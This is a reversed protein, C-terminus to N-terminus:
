RPDDSFRGGMAQSSSLLDNWAREARRREHVFPPVGRSFAFDIQTKVSSGVTDAMRRLDFHGLGIANAVVAAAGMRNVAFDAAHFIGAAQLIWAIADPSGHADFANQNNAAGAVARVGSMIMAAAVDFTIPQPGGNPSLIRAEPLMTVIPALGAESRIGHWAMRVSEWVNPMRVSADHYLPAPFGGSRLACLKGPDIDVVGAVPSGRVNRLKQHLLSGIGGFGVILVPSVTGGLFEEHVNRLASYVGAATHGIPAHGRYNGFKSGVINWPALKALADAAEPGVGEDSGTLSIGLTTLVDAYVTLSKAFGQGNNRHLLIGKSGGLGTPTDHKVQHLAEDISRWKHTMAVGKDVVRKLAQGFTMRDDRFAMTGGSSLWLNRKLRSWPSRGVGHVFIMGCVGEEDNLFVALGLGNAWHRDLSESWFSGLDHAKAFFAVQTGGETTFPSFGDTPDAMRAWFGPSPSPRTFTLPSFIERVAALPSLSSAGDRKELRALESEGAGVRAGLLALSRLAEGVQLVGGDRIAALTRVTTEPLDWAELEGAARVTQALRPAVDALRGANQLALQLTSVAQSLTLSSADM